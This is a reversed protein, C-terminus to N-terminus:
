CYKAVLDVSSEVGIRDFNSALWADARQRGIEHLLALFKWTGNMKSSGSLESIVDEAEILHIFMRKGGITKGDDILKTVFAITRMERVLSSNFSIEQMPNIITSSNTPLESRETPTLHVMVVDRAECGSIVPFIAPNGMLGGDWYAQGDIEPARMMFPSCASALVHDAEIEERTFIKV